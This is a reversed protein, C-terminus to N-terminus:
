SIPEWRNTKHLVRSLVETSTLWLKFNRREVSPHRGLLNNLDERGLVDDPQRCYPALLAVLKEKGPVTISLSTALIYRALRLQQIKPLEDREMTRLLAALDSSAYHKAQLITKRHCADIGRDLSPAFTELRVGIEEQLLDRCLNQFDSSSLSRFDYESM